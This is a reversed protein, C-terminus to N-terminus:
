SFPAVRSVCAEKAVWRGAISAAFDPAANCYALEQSTFNRSLFTPNGSPISSILEVDTGVGSVGEVSNAMLEKAISANNVKTVVTSPLAKPFSFSGHADATARALPNLLVPTELEASFPAGDKIQVM